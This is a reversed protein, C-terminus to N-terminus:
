PCRSVASRVVELAAIASTGVAWYASPQDASWGYVGDNVLTWAFTEYAASDSVPDVPILLAWILRLAMGAALVALAGRPMARAPHAPAAEAM